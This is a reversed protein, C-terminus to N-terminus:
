HSSKAHAPVSPADIVERLKVALAFASFPKQLFVEGVSSNKKKAISEAYGSTFVIKIGPIAYRMREALERGGMQPMVLDTIMVSPPETVRHILRLAEEGNSAEIVSYGLKRLISSAFNQVLIEDEVLLVTESGTPMTSYQHQPHRKEFPESVRPLFVKFTTGVGLESYVEINGGSQKVIGYSTALGLGTGLGKDKTTFFPEFIKNKVDAAIGIGTDSVTLLVYDGAPLDHHNAAYEEDLTVNRTELIIKGGHPLADRSNVVLNMVVQEFYGPDVKVAGLDAAALTTMEINEPILRRLMKDIDILLDNL